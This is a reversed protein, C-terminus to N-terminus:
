MEVIEFTTTADKQSLWHVLRIKSMLKHDQGSSVYNKTLQCKWVIVIAQSHTSCYCHKSPEVGVKGM